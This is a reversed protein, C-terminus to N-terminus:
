RAGPAGPVGAGGSHGHNNSTADDQKNFRGLNSVIQEFFGLSQGESPTTQSAIQIDKSDAMSYHRIATVVGGSDFAVELVRQDIVEPAFVARTKRIASVYYWTPPGFSSESSPSGLLKMTEAKTTQGIHIQAVVEDEKLHGREVITACAGLIVISAFCLYQLFHRM